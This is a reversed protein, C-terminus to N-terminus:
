ILLRVQTGSGPTSDIDLQMGKESARSKMNGLGFGRTVEGMDFGTGNDSFVLEATYRDDSTPKLSLTVESAKAHKIANTLAEQLIRLIHQAKSPSYDAPEDTLEVQWNVILGANEYRSLLRDRFLALLAPLNQNHHDLSNVTLRLEDLAGRLANAVEADSTKDSEVVSLISVLQGGLGDHIDRMIAQREKERASQRELSKQNEFATYLEQEREAIKRSLDTNVSELQRANEIFRQLLTSGFFLFAIFGFYASIYYVHDQIVGATILADHTPYIVGLFAIGTLLHDAWHDSHRAVVVMQALMYVLLIVYYPVAIAFAVPYFLDIPLVMLVLTLALSFILIQRGYTKRELGTLKATRDLYYWNIFFYGFIATWVSALLMIKDWIELPLPILSIAHNVTHLSWMFAMGALMGHSPESRQFLWLILMILGLVFMAFVIIQVFTHLFLTHVQYSPRLDEFPGLYFKDLFGHGAPDARLEIRIVNDGAMLLGAPINLLLPQMYNRALMPEFPGGDGVYVDNITVSLNSRHAPFFIGWLAEPAEELTVQIEYYGRMADTSENHRWNDPLKRISKETQGHESFYMYYIELGSKPTPLDLVFPALAIAVIISQAIILFTRRFRKNTPAETAPRVTDEKATM